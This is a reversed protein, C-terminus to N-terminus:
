AVLVAERLVTDRMRPRLGGETAIDVPCGLLEELAAQVRVLTFLSVRAGPVFTVLIDIDSGPRAERRALSGFIALSRVAHERRLDPLAARLAAIADDLRLM